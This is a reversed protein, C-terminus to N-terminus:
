HKDAIVPLLPNWIGILPDRSGVGLTAGVYRENYEALAAQAEDSLAEYDVEAARRTILHDYLIERLQKETLSPSPTLTAYL